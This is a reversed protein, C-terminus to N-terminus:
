DLAPLWGGEVRPQFASLLAPPAAAGAPCRVVEPSTYVARPSM